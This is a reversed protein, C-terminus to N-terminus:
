EGAGLGPFESGLVDAVDQELALRVDALHEGTCALDARAIAIEDAQLRALREEDAPSLDLEEGDLMAGGGMVIVREDDAGGPVPRDDGTIQSYRQSLDSFVEQQSEYPYDAAAM